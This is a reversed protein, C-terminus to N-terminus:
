PVSEFGDAFVADAAALDIRYAAGQSENVGIRADFAGILVEGDAAFAVASGFHDGGGGEEATLKLSQQWGDDAHDFVYVAGQEDDDGIAARPAGVLAKGGRLALSSGFWAGAAGDSALLKQTEHWTDGGDEFAYVAGRFVDDGISVGRAGVLAVGGEIAVSWGFADFEAGDGATLKASQQWIGSDNDFVYAAGQAPRGDITANDAGILARAGDIAISYGSCITTSATTPSLNRRKRGSAAPAPSCTCRARRM